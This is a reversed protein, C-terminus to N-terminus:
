IITRIQQIISWIQNGYEDDEIKKINHLFGNVHAFITRSGFDLRKLNVGKEEGRTTRFISYILEKTSRDRQISITIDPKIEKYEELWDIIMFSDPLGDVETLPTENRLVSIIINKETTLTFMDCNSLTKIRTERDVRKRSVWNHYQEFLTKDSTEFGTTDFGSYSGDTNILARMFIERIEASNPNQAWKEQLFNRFSDLPPITENPFTKAFVNPGQTDWCSIKKIFDYLDDINIHGYLEARNISIDIYATMYVEDLHAVFGGHVIIKELGREITGTTGLLEFACPLDKDQHHDFNNREPNFEMGVDGVLINPNQLEEQTPNRREVEIFRYNNQNEM